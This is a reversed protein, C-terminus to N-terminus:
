SVEESKTVRQCKVMANDPDQRRLHKTRKAQRGDDRKSDISYCVKHPEYEGLRDEHQRHRLDCRFTIIM